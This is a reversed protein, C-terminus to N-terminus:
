APGENEIVTVELLMKPHIHCRVQYIGAETFLIDITEGPKREKTDFRLKPETSFIQHLFEDDNRFTVTTGQSILIGGPIFEKGQEVVTAVARHPVQALAVGSIFGLGILM